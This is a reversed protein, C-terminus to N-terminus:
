DDHEEDFITPISRLPRVPSRRRELRVDPPQEPRPGHVRKKREMRRIRELPTEEGAADRVSRMLGGFRGSFIMRVLTLLTILGVVGIISISVWNLDQSADTRPSNETGEHATEQSPDEPNEGARTDEAKSPPSMASQAGGGAEREADTPDNEGLDSARPPKKESHPADTRATHADNERVSPREEDRDDAAPTPLFSNATAFSIPSG